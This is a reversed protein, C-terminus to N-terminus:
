EKVESNLWELVCQSCPLMGNVFNEKECETPIEIKCSDHFLIAQNRAIEEASMTKIREYNTM